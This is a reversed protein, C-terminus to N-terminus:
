GMVAILGEAHMDVASKLAVQDPKALDTTVARVGAPLRDPNRVVATVEHGAAIAQDLVQRGTGGTAAVITLKM